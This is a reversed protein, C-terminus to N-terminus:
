LYAIAIEYAVHAPCATPENGEYDLEGKRVPSRSRIMEAKKLILQKDLSQIAQRAANRTSTM